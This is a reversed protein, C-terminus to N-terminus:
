HGPCCRVHVPRRQKIDDVQVGMEVGPITHDPCHVADAESHVLALGEADHALAAGALRHCREGDHPEHRLRRAPNDAAPDQELAGVEELEALGLHAMHPTPVDGQDKLIRHSGKIRQVPHTVLDLLRDFPMQPEVALRATGLQMAASALTPM